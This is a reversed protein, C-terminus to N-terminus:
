DDIDRELAVCEEVGAAVMEVLRPRPRGGLVALCGNRRGEEEGVRAVAGGFFRCFRRWAPLRVCPSINRTLSM